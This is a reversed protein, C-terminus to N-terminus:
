NIIGMVTLKTGYGVTIPTINVLKAIKQPGWMTYIPNELYKYTTYRLRFAAKTM